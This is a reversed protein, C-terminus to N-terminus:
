FWYFSSRWVSSCSRSCSRLSSSFVTIECGTCDAGNFDASLRPEEYPLPVGVSAPWTSWRLLSFNITVGGTIIRSSKLALFASIRALCLSLTCSCVSTLSLCCSVELRASSSWWCRSLSYYIYSSLEVKTMPSSITLWSIAWFALMSPIRWSPLLQLM